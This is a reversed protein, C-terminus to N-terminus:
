ESITRVLRLGTTSTLPWAYSFETPRYAYASGPHECQQQYDIGGNQAWPYCAEPNYGSDIYPIHYTGMIKHYSYGDFGNENYTIEAANGIMDYVGFISANDYDGGAYLGEISYPWSGDPLTSNDSSYEEDLCFQYYFCENYCGSGGYMAFCDNNADTYEGSSWPFYIENYGRAAYTWESITPIRLGYYDLLRQIIDTENMVDDVDSDSVLQPYGHESHLPVIELIAPFDTYGSEISLTSGDYEIYTFLDDITNGDNDLNINNDNLAWLLVQENTLEYKMIEYPHNITQINGELDYYDGPPIAVMEFPIEVIHSEAVVRFVVDVMDLDDPAQWTLNYTGPLVNNGVGDGIADILFPPNTWNFDIEEGNPSTATFWDGPLCNWLTLPTGPGPWWTDEVLLLLVGSTGPPISGLNSNSSNPDPSQLNIVVPWGDADPAPTLTIDWQSTYGGSQWINLDTYDLGLNQLVWGENSCDLTISVESWAEFGTSAYFAFTPASGWAELDISPYYYSVIYVNVDFSPFVDDPLLTYEIDVIGSGDTRQTAVVNTIEAQTFCLTLLSLVIIFRKM